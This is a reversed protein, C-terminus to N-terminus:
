PSMSVHMAEERWAGPGKLHVPSAVIIGSYSLGVAAFSVVFCICVWNRQEFFLGEAQDLVQQYAQEKTVGEAFNSADAHVM